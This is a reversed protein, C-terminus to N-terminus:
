RIRHSTRADALAQRVVARAMWRSTESSRAASLGRIDRLVVFAEIGACVALASVLHEYSAGPLAYAAPRIASEIWDLRRVGRRPVGRAPPELVTLQIMSRLLAEHEATLRQMAAVLRDVRRELSEAEAALPGAAIAAEMTPRLGELAAEILLKSQTPFYRYATRRSVEAADAVEAVTPRGGARM